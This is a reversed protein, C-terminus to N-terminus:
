PREWLDSSSFAQRTNSLVREVAPDGKGIPSRRVFMQEPRQGLIFEWFLGLVTAERHAQTSFTTGSLWFLTNTLIIAMGGPIEFRERNKNMSQLPRADEHREIAAAWNEGIEMEETRWEERLERFRRAVNSSRPRSGSRTRIWETWRIEIDESTVEMQPGPHAVFKRVLLVVIWDRVANLRPSEFM